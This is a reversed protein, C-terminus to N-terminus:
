RVVVQAFLRYQYIAPLNQQAALRVLQDARRRFFEGTGVLLAGARLESLTAFAANIEGETGPM